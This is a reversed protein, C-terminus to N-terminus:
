PTSNVMGLARNWSEVYRRQQDRVGQFLLTIIKQNDRELAEMCATKHKADRPGIKARHALLMEVLAEHNMRVAAHLATTGDKTATDPNAHADLLMRTINQLGLTVAMMLPTKRNPENELDPEAGAKLLLNVVDDLRCCVALHLLTMGSESQYNINKIEAILQRSQELIEAEHLSTKKLTDQLLLRLQTFAVDSLINKIKVYNERSARILTHRRLISTVVSLAQDPEAGHQLLVEVEHWRMQGSAYALAQSLIEISQTKAIFRSLSCDKEAQLVAFILELDSSQLIGESLPGGYLILLRAIEPPFKTRPTFSQTPRIPITAGAELLQKVEQLSVSSLETSSNAAHEILEHLQTDLKQLDERTLQNEEPREMAGLSGFSLGM